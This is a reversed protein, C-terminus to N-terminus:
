VVAQEPVEAPLPEVAAAMEPAPATPSVEFPSPAPAASVESPLEEGEASKSKKLAKEDKLILIWNYATPQTKYTNMYRYVKDIDSLNNFAIIAKFKDSYEIYGTLNPDNLSTISVRPYFDNKFKVITVKITHVIGEFKRFALMESSSEDSDMEENLTTKDFPTGTEEINKVKKDIAAKWLMESEVAERNAKLDADSYDLYYRMALEKSMEPHNETVLGYNEFKIKLLRQQEYLEYSSPRTIRLVFDKESLEYQQWLGMLKLHTIFGKKFAVAFRDQIRMIFKAFRYEEYNITESKEVKVNPDKFRNYPIKLALYLKRLFYELDPLESWSVSGGITTVTTGTSGEPKPFWFSELIQHPDYDNSTSGTLPNYFKKTQYRRMLKYVEDEARARPLKGTDVNFILREPARVLRYIIIADEILSLQRYAKRAKELVPYVILKNPTYLGTDVYTIQEWPFPIGKQDALRVSNETDASQDADSSHGSGSSAPTVQVGGQLKTETDGSQYSDNAKRTFVMIGLKKGFGDILFDYAENPIMNVGVIGQEKHEDDIINEWCLEGDIVLTRAYDFFNYDLDFLSIYNKFQESIETEKLNNIKQANTIELSIIDGNDDYNLMADCIEDIANGIEPFESMIRYNKLRTPKSTSIAGYVFEAYANSTDFGITQFSGTDESGKFYEEIVSQRIKDEDEQSLKKFDEFKPNVERADQTSVENQGFMRNVLGSFWSM